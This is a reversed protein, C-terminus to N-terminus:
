IVSRALMDEWVRRATAGLTRLPEPPCYCPADCQQMYRVEESDRGCVWDALFTGCM